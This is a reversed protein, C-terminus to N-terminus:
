KSEPEAADLVLRLPTQRDSTPDGDSREQRVEVVARGSDDTYTAVHLSRSRPNGAPIAAYASTLLSLCSRVLRAEKSRVFPVASYMRVVRARQRLEARVIKLATELAERPDIRRERDPVGLAGLDRAVQFVLTAGETADRLVRALDDLDPALAELDLAEGQALRQRTRRLERSARGLVGIAYALPNAIEKSIGAAVQTMM